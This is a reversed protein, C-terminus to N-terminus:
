HRRHRRGGTGPFPCRGVGAGGPEGAGTTGAGGPGCTAGVLEGLQDRRSRLSNVWGDALPQPSGRLTPVTRRADEASSALVRLASPDGPDFRMWVGEGGDRGQAFMSIRARLLQFAQAVGM